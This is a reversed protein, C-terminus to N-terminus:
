AKVDEFIGVQDGRPPFDHPGPHVAPILVGVFPTVWLVVDCAGGAEGQVMSALKPSAIVLFTYEYGLCLVNLYIIVGDTTEAAKSV